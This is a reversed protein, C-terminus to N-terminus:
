YNQHRLALANGRNLDCCYENAPVSESTNFFLEKVSCSFFSSIKKIVFDQCTCFHDEYHAVESSRFRAFVLRGCLSHGVSKKTPRLFASRISFFFIRFLSAFRIQTRYVAFGEGSLLRRFFSKLFKFVFRYTHADLYVIGFPSSFIDRTSVCLPICFFALVKKLEPSYILM